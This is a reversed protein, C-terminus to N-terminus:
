EYIRKGFRDRLQERFEMIIQRIKTDREPVIEAIERSSLQNFFYFTLINRVNGPQSEIFQRVQDLYVINFGPHPLELDREDDLNQGHMREAATKDKMSNTLIMSFWKDFSSNKNFAKYYTLARTYAEQVVEEALHHSRLIRRFTKILGDKNKKYHDEILGYAELRLANQSM